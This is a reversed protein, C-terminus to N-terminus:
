FDVDDGRLRVVPASVYPKVFLNRGSHIGRLGELKGADSLRTIFYPRPIRSWHSAENKRRIRRQFNIGWLQEEDRGFRLTKFPIAIEVLWGWETIKTKVHWIGDWDRNSKGGDNAIQSDHKSGRPNTSFLYGNRDDNFTDLVFVFTDNDFPPYDRRMDTIVIGEEGSTDFCRAGVYLNEDDYLLYVETRESAPDGEQPEQQYLDSIPETLAWDPEDLAGDIVIQNETRLATIVKEDQGNEAGPNLASGTASSGSLLM